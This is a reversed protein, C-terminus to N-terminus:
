KGVMARLGDDVTSLVAEFEGGRVGKVLSDEGEGDIEGVGAIKEQGGSLREKEALEEDAWDVM